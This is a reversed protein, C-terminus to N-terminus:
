CQILWILIILLLVYKCLFTILYLLEDFYFFGLLWEDESNWHFECACRPQFNEIKKFPHVSLVKFVFILLIKLVWENRKFFIKTAEWWLMLNDVCVAKAICHEIFYKFTGFSAFFAFQITSALSEFKRWLYSFCVIIGCYNGKLLTQLEASLM